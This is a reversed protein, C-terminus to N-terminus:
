IKKRSNKFKMIDKNTILRLQDLGNLVMKNVSLAYKIAEFTKGQRKGIWFCIIFNSDDILRKYTEHKEINGKMQGCVTISYAKNYCENLLEVQYKYWDQSMTELPYPIFMHYKYRANQNLCEEAAWLGVGIEGAINFIVGEGYQFYLVEITRGIIGRVDEPEPNSFHEPSHGIIGIKYM